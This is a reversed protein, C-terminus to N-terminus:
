LANPILTALLLKNYFYTKFIKQCFGIEAFGSEVYLDKKRLYEKDKLIKKFNKKKYEVGRKKLSSFKKYECKENDNSQHNEVDM